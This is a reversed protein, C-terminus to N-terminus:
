EIKPVLQASFDGFTIKHYGTLDYMAMLLEVEEVISRSGGKKHEILLRELDYSSITGTEDRDVIRFIDELSIEDSQRIKLLRQRLYEHASENTLMTRFLNKLQEQTEHSIEEDSQRIVLRKANSNDIPTVLRCFERFDIKSDLDQDFRRFM